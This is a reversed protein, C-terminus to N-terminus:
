KVVIEYGDLKRINLKKFVFDYEELNRIPGIVVFYNGIKGKIAINKTPLFNKLNDVLENAYEFYYFSGYQIFLKNKKPKKKIIIKKKNLSVVVVDNVKSTNRLQKEEKFIKAKNAIFIRNKKISEIKVISFNSNIKLGKIVSKSIYAIRPNNVIKKKKIKFLNMSKQNDLNTIKLSSGKFDKGVVIELDENKIDLDMLNGVFGKKEFPLYNEVNQINSCSFFILSIIIIFFNIKLM